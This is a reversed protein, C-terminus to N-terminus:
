ALDKGSGSSRRFVPAKGGDTKTFEVNVTVGIDAGETELITSYMRFGESLEIIGYTVPKGAHTSRTLSYVKGAGNSVMVELAGRKCSSCLSKPYYCSFGCEVCRLYPLKGKEFHAHYTLLTEHLKM